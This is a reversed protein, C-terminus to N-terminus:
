SVPMELQSAKVSTQEYKIHDLSAICVSADLHKKVLFYM